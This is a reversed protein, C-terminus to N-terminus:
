WCQGAAIYGGHQVEKKPKAHPTFAKRLNHLMSAAAVDNARAFRSSQRLISRTCGVVARVSVIACEIVRDGLVRLAVAMDEVQDSAERAEKRFRVAEDM